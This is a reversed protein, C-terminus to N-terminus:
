SARTVSTSCYHGTMLADSNLEARPTTPAAAPTPVTAFVATPGKSAVGRRQLDPSGRNAAENEPVASGTRLLCAGYCPANVRGLRHVTSHAAHRASM